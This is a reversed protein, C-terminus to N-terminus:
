TPSKDTQDKILSTRGLKGDPGVFGSQHRILMEKVQQKLTLALSKSVNDLLPQIHEPLINDSIESHTAAVTNVPNESIFEIPDLNGM